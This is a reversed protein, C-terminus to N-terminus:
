HGFQPHLWQAGPSLNWRDYVPSKIEEMTTNDSVTVTTTYQGDTKLFIPYTKNRQTKGANTTGAVERRSAGKKQNCRVGWSNHLQGMQQLLPNRITGMIHRFRIREEKQMNEQVMADIKAEGLM